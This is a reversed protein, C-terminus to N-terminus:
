ARIRFSWRSHESSTHLARIWVLSTLWTRAIGVIKLVCDMYLELKTDLWIVQHRIQSYVAHTTNNFHCLCVEYENKYENAIVKSRIDALEGFVDVAPQIKETYEEPPDKLFATTSQWRFYPVVSDVLALAGSQDFPVSTICDYALQAPVTASTSNQTATLASVQACATGNSTTYQRSHIQPQVPSSLTLSALSLGAITQLFRAM